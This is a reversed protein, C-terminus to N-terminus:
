QSQLRSVVKHSVHLHTSMKVVAAHESSMLSRCSKLRHPVHDSAGECGDIEKSMAKANQLVSHAEM